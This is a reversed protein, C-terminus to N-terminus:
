GEAVDESVYLECALWYSGRGQAKGSNLEALWHRTGDERQLSKDETQGYVLM